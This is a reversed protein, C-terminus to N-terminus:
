QVSLSISTTRWWYVFYLSIIYHNGLIRILLRGFSTWIHAVTILM